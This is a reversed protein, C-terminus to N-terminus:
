HIGKADIEGKLKLSMYVQKNSMEVQIDIPWMLTLHGLSFGQSIGRETIQIKSFLVVNLSYSLNVIQFFFRGVGM